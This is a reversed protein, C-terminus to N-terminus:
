ASRKGKFAKRANAAVSPPPPDQKARAAAGRLRGMLQDDAANKSKRSQGPKRGSGKGGMPVESPITFAGVEVGLVDAIARVTSPRPIDTTGNEIKRLGEESLGIREALEGRTLPVNQRLAVLAAQNIQM